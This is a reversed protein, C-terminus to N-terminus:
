NLGITTFADNVIGSADSISLAEVGKAIASRIEHARPNTRATAAAKGGNAALARRHEKEREHEFKHIDISSDQYADNLVKQDIMVNILHMAQLPSLTSDVTQGKRLRHSTLGSGMLYPSKTALRMRLNRVQVPTTELYTPLNLKRRLHNMFSVIQEESVGHGLGNRYAQESRTLKNELLTSLAPPLNYLHRYITVAHALDAISQPQDAGANRAFEELTTDAANM